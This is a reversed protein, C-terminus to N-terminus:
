SFSWWGGRELFLREYSLGFTYDVQMTTEIRDKGNNTDINSIVDSSDYVMAADSALLYFRTKTQHEQKM